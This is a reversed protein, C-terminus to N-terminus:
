CEKAFVKERMLNGSEFLVRTEARTRSEQDQYKIGKLMQIGEEADYLMQRSGVKDNHM